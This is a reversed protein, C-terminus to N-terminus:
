GNVLRVLPSEPLYDIINLSAYSQDLRFILSDPIALAEAVLIRNISGHSVVHVTKGQHNKLLSAGFGLVRTKVQAFSEGHPFAIETPREMWLRYEEPYRKEIAEYTLGEFSGFDIERLEHALTPELRLAAGVIAASEMARKLPSAYLVDGRLNSLAALKAEVQKQGFESLRVDLSGYCIGKALREPEGHRILILRLSFKTPLSSFDLISPMM